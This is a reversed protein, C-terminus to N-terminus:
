NKIEDRIPLYHFIKILKTPLAQFLTLTYFLDM